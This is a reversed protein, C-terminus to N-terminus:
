LVVSPRFVKRLPVFHCVRGQSGRVQYVQRDIISDGSAVACFFRIFDTGVASYNRVCCFRLQCCGYREQYRVPYERVFEDFYDRVIGFFPSSAHDRPRYFKSPSHVAVARLM